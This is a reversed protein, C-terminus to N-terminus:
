AAPLSGLLRELASGCDEAVRLELLGDARTRGLNLAAVPKGLARAAVCFRFGSYVMLSSGVVLLADSAALASLVREVRERPVNEGFFVVDPKLVGDCSPCPPVRFGGLDAALRADGDPRADSAAGAFAPNWSLLLEQVDSRALAAGCALCVVRDLRGHLDLVRRSGAKQHLGDVNQTALLSLRGRAELEALAAHAPNPRAAAVRPFGVLSRAWYRRRAAASAVFDAYLMPPGHKWRGEQDRYEPIGSATSCGAGTLM